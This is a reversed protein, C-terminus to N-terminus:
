YFLQALSTGLGKPAHLTAVFGARLWSLASGEFQQGAMREVPFVITKLDM